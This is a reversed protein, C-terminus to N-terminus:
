KYKEILKKLTEPSKDSAKVEEWFDYEKEYDDFHALVDALISTVEEIDDVDAVEAVMINWRKDSMPGYSQEIDQRDKETLQM